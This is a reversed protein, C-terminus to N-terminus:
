SEKWTESFTLCILGLSFCTHVPSFSHALNNLELRQSGFGAALCYLGEDTIVGRQAACAAMPEPPLRCEHNAASAPRGTAQICGDRVANTAKAFHCAAGTLQPPIRAASEESAEGDIVM